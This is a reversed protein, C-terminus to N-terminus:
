EAGGKMEAIRTLAADAVVGSHDAEAACEEIAAIAVALIADHRGLQAIRLSMARAAMATTWTEPPSPKMEARIAALEAEAREARAIAATLMDARIYEIGDKTHSCWQGGRQGSNEYTQWLWIREPADSM